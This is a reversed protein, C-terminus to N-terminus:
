IVKKAKIKEVNSNTYETNFAFNSGGYVNDFELKLTGQGTPTNDTEDDSSCSAVLLTTAVIAFIKKFQFKM